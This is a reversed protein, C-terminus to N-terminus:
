ILLPLNITPLNNHSIGEPTNAIVRHSLTQIAIFGSTQSPTFDTFATVFLNDLSKKEVDIHCCKLQAAASFQQDIISKCLSHESEPKAHCCGSSTVKIEEVALCCNQHSNQALSFSVDLGSKVCQHRVISIGANWIMFQMIFIATILKKM